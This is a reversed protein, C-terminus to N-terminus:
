KFEGCSENLVRISVGEVCFNYEHWGGRGGGELEM